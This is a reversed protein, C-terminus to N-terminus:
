QGAGKRGLRNLHGLAGLVGAVPAIALAALMRNPDAMADATNKLHPKGSGTEISKDLVDFPVPSIYITHTGGNEKVGYIFGNIDAALRRAKTIIQARPGIEQVQEPCVEICAPLEGDAVRDYCRDCKYMVGNGAYQPLLDLHLGVGSQRQPIHWPCVKRCKAGGMCLDPHLRVIGNSLTHAAGFPCLNVCPPNQCHMCRRPIALEFSQGDYTGEAHQIFLWNYPTLRDTVERKEESSWDEVRVKRQPVMTPIPGDPEPFKTDNVDRCAEVCAECAICKRIDLLTCLDDNSPKKAALSPTASLALTGAAAVGSKLFLRRSIRKSTM